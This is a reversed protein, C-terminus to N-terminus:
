SLETYNAWMQEYADEMEAAFQKANWIPSTQRSAKLKWAIQQRLAADEGLRIGWEVYEADTWAIGETVGVNMMMTYSNRSVFQQGVRTVLPIGMWLTELTTTAGNYPYTDLVVDAIGLNARHVLESFVTPLYRLRDCSVGEEEAIQNFFNKISNEDALGKILFYSNPVEKLIKMQLRVTDPHRKHGKQASLYIVANAPIDLQDRRLNPVGVEFGDVAVYTQPLRWIKETYYDQANEPLVYSDAIFYDIAPIGSGDWGLWTAQIAAPKMSMIECTTDLTISDLDILIDVDDQYIQDAIEPADFGLYRSQTSNNTFWTQTFSDEQSQNIFYTYIEHRDRDHHQFLWRALWGVSHQRLYGSLYGLRLKKTIKLNPQQIKLQHRHQYQGVRASANSRVNTQCLSSVQNHFYRNSQPEDRLYPFFFTSTFLCSTAERSLDHLQQEILAQLLNQHQDFVSYAEKWSGGASMLGRLLLFNSYIQGPLSQAVTCFRRATEIGKDYDGSKQYFNALHGLVQTNDPTLRSCFEVYKTAVKIHGLAYALKIAIHMLVDILSQPDEVLPLCAEALELSQPHLPEHELVEQLAGLLLLPTAKTIHELSLLYVINLSNLDEAMFKKLHISLLIIKLLNDINKPDIERIHQRIAWAVQYAEITVQREAEVELIHTLESSWEDIQEPEAEAIVLLWNTQAEVEQGQLLFVLGLYWYNNRNSPDTEIAQEYLTVAEHYYGQILFQYAQEQLDELNNFHTSTNEISM